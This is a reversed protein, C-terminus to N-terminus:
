KVAFFLGLILVILAQIAVRAMMLKNSFKKDTKGGVGMVILGAILVAAVAILLVLIVWNMVGGSLPIRALLLPV